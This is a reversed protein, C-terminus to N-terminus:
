SVAEPAAPNGGAIVRWQGADTRRYLQGVGWGVAQGDRWFCPPCMEAWAGTATAGDAFWDHADLSSGCLGCDIPPSPHLSTAHGAMGLRSLMVIVGSIEKHFKRAFAEPVGERDRTAVAVPLLREFAAFDPDDM